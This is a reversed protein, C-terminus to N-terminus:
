KDQIGCGIVKICIYIQYTTYSLTTGSYKYKWYSTMHM